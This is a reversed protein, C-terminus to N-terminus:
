KFNSDTTCLQLFFFTCSHSLLLCVYTIGNTLTNKKLIFSNSVISTELANLFDDTTLAGSVESWEFTWLFSYSPVQAILKVKDDVSITTGSISYLSVPLPQNFSVSIQISHSVNPRTSTENDIM